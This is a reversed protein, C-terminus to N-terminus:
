ALAVGSFPHRVLQGDRGQVLKGETKEYELLKGVDILIAGSLLGVTLNDDIDRSFLEIAAAAVAGIALYAAPFPVFEHLIGGAALAGTMYGLSGELTRPGVLPTRGFRM